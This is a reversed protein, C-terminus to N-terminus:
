LDFIAASSASKEGSKFTAPAAPSVKELIYAEEKESYSSLDSVMFDIELIEEENPNLEKTKKFGSLIQFPEKLRGEPKSVFLFVVEKGKFNGTNTVKVKASVKEGLIEASLFEVDFTTYSLGHGFPFIVPKDALDFYRYGIFIGEKYYTEDKNGFNSITPYFSPKAWTFALKGSPNSKGLLIDSLVESTVVGLQSLLLINEVEELESLDVAGGVNLVLMFREFKKQCYLITQKEKETLLIDGEKIERDRGEGSIRSLVYVATKFDENFSKKENLAEEGDYIEFGAEKLADEINIFIRSNVEGSGKGGKITKKAGEGFLVIKTKEEVPFKGNSRLLVTCEAAKERLFKNHKIEHDTLM